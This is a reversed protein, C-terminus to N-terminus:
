HVTSIISAHLFMCRSKVIKEDYYEGGLLKRTFFVDTSEKNRVNIRLM